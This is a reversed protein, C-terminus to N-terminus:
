VPRRRDRRRGRCEPTPLRQLGHGFGLGDGSGGHQPRRKGLARDGDGGGQEDGAHRGVQEELDARVGDAALFLEGRQRRQPEGREGESGAEEKGELLLETSPEAVPPREALAAPRDDGLDGAEAEQEAAEDGQRDDTEARQDRADVEVAVPHHEDGEDDGEAGVCGGVEGAADARAAAAEAGVGDDHAGVADNADGHAASNAARPMVATPGYAKRIARDGSTPM